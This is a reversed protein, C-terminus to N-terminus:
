KKDEKQFREPVKGFARFAHLEDWSVSKDSTLKDEMEDSKAVKDAETTEGQDFKKDIVTAISKRMNPMSEIKEGLKTMYGTLKEISKVLETNDVKVEIKQAEVKPESKEICKTKDDKADIATDVKTDLIPKKKSKGMDMVNKMADSLAKLAEEFKADNKETSTDTGTSTGADTGTGSVQSKLDQLTVLVSSLLSGFSPDSSKTGTDTSSSKAVEDKVPETTKATEETKVDEAKTETAPTTTETKTEVTPETKVEAKTEVVPTVTETKVEATKVEETKVEPKAEEKVTEDSKKVEPKIDITNIKRIDWHKIFNAVDPTIEKTVLKQKDLNEKVGERQESDKIDKEVKDESVAISTAEPLKDVQISKTVALALTGLNAPHDTISVEDPEIDKYVPIWKGLKEDLEKILGGPNIRGAVSMGIQGGNKLMSWLDKAKTLWDNLKAKIWLAPKGDQDIVDAKIIVGLKDDWDSGHESRLPKGVLRAAMKAIVEPSMKEMTQDIDTTSAVGEIFMEGSDGAYAKTFTLFPSNFSIQM